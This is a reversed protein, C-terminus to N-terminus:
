SIFYKFLSIFAIQESSILYGLSISTDRTKGRADRPGKQLSRDHKRHGNKTRKRDGKRLKWLDKFIESVAKFRAKDSLIYITAHKFTYM